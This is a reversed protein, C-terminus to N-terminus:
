WFYFYIDGGTVITILLSDGFHTLFIFWWIFWWRWWRLWWWWLLAYDAPTAHSKHRPRLSRTAVSTAVLWGSVIAELARDHPEGACRDDPTQKRLSGRAPTGSSTRPM